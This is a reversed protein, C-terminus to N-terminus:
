PWSRASAQPKLARLEFAAPHLPNGTQGVALAAGRWSREINSRITSSKKASLDGSEWYDAVLHIPSPHNARAVDALLSPRDRDGTLPDNSPGQHDTHDPSEGVASKVASV